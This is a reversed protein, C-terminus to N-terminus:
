GSDPKISPLLKIWSSDNANVGVGMTSADSANIKFIFLFAPNTSLKMGNIQLTILM